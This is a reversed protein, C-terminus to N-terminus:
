SLEEYEESKLVEVQSSSTVTESTMDSTSESVEGGGELFDDLEPDKDPVFTELTTSPVPSPEGAEVTTIQGKRKYEELDKNFEQDFTEHRVKMLLCEQIAKMKYSESMSKEMEQKKSQLVKQRETRYADLHHRHVAKMREFQLRDCDKELKELEYQINIINLGTESVIGKCKEVDETLSSLTSALNSMEVLKEEKTRIDNHLQTIKTSVTVAAESASMISSHVEEWTSQYKNLLASGVKIDHNSDCQEIVPGTDAFKESIDTQVQTVKDLLLKFSFM